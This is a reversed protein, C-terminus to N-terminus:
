ILVFQGFVSYSNVLILVFQSLYSNVQTRISETGLPRPCVGLNALADLYYKAIVGSSNNSNSVELWLIRRSYGDIIVGNFCFGYPKLTDYGDVHWVYNPGQAYYRHRVLRHANRQRVGEPDIKHMMQLVMDRPIRIDHDNVLLRLMSRYSIRKASNEIEASLLDRVDARRSYNKNRYLGNAKLIRKSQRLSLKIGHIM